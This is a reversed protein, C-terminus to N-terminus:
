KRKKKARDGLVYSDRSKVAVDPKDVRVKIKRLKGADENDPPYFGLSYYERLESAIKSFAGSLNGFSDALYIRGGTRLALQNLYEEARRYDEESTGREGPMSVTPVSIPVNTGTPSRRPFPSTSVPPNGIVPKNKMAQVDQYTDYRIPYILADLEMADDLNQLDNSKTSTTDVGDTFLIIAKRGKIRKLRENMVLDIAEYLSTGTAIRTSRIARYIQARDNTPECLMHVDEDFSVVMVKDRPGLQDIFSIAASQIDAIQFKTSYSMDLVLAVTFPEQESSFYAIDREAGDEFVKFNDKTLGGVFRGKRDIVRVPVTVLSTDVKVVEGNDEANEAVTATSPTPTPTPLPQPARENSKGTGTPAVRRSQAQCFTVALTALLLFIFTKM